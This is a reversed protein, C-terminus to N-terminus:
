RGYDGLGSELLDFARNAAAVADPYVADTREGAIIRRNNETVLTFQAAIVQAAVLRPTLDGPAAGTVEALAEALADASRSAFGLVRLMLVPTSTMLRQVALIKPHDNIGTVADRDALAGLFRRRLAAV